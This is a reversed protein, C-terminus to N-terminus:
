EVGFPSPAKLLAQERKVLEQWEVMIAGISGDAVQEAQAMQGKLKQKQLKIKTHKIRLIYDWVRRDRETGTDEIVILESILQTADESSLSDVLTAPDSPGDGDLSAIRKEVIAAFMENTFDSPHLQEEVMLAVDSDNLMMRVLEREPDEFKVSSTQPKEYDRLGKRDARLLPALLSQPIPLRQEAQELYRERHRLNTAKNVIGALVKLAEERESSKSTDFQAAIFEPISNSQEIRALFAKSGATRVYTDPDQGDPLQIVQTWIDAAVLPELGRMAARCGASDPDFILAAQRAYRGILRAHDETLATGCTAAVNEMGAQYLSLLDMYGEVILVKDASRVADKTQHLGYVIRSKQYIPSEPSNLYKPQEEDTFSRGGFGVVRGSVSYIPFILRNRFADYCRDGNTKAVGAKVLWDQSISHKRAEKILGDWGNPAYGLTFAHITADTLGREKVYSRVPASEESNLLKEHFYRAAFQTVKALSENESSIQQDHGSEPLAIHLKEAIQRVSEVFTVKEHEMLFTFVNGGKGCGFCHFIQREPNVNFSPTKENHFPCLGVYNKGRKNLTLFDSILDVIDAQSRIVDIMEEPIRGAM